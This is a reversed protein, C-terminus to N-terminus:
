LFPYPDFFLFSGLFFVVVSYLGMLFLGSVGYKMGNYYHFYIPIRGGGRKKREQAVLYVVNGGGWGILVANSKLPIWYQWTPAGTQALSIGYGVMYLLLLYKWREHFFLMMKEIISM